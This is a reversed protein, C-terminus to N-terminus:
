GWFVGTPDDGIESLLVEVQSSGPVNPYSRFRGNRDAYLLTWTRVTQDYRLLAIPTSTWAPTSDTSWPARREVITLQGAARQCEVRVEHRAREPVRAACWRAVRAVDLDPLGPVRAPAGASGRGTGADAVRPVAPLPRVNDAATGLADFAADLRTRRRRDPEHNAEAAVSGLLEDFDDATGALVVGAGEPRAGFVVRECRRDLFTLARLTEAVSETISLRRLDADSHRDVEGACVYPSDQWGSIMGGDGCDTCAYSIPAASDTRAVTMRGPCARHGPRRQCPLVTIWAAGPEAATAARVLSGLQSALRRAPGPAEDSLDLFHRLDTTRVAIFRCPAEKDPYRSM